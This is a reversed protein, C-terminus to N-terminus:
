IIKYFGTFFCAKKLVLSCVQFDNVMLCVQAWFLIVSGLIFPTPSALNQLSRIEHLVELFFARAMETPENYFFTELENKELMGM